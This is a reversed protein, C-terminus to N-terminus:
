TRRDRISFEKKAIRKGFFGIFGLKTQSSKFCTLEIKLGSPIERSIKKRIKKFSDLNEGRNKWDM